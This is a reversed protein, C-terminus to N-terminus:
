AAADVYGTIWAIPAREFIGPFIWEESASDDAIQHLAFLSLM